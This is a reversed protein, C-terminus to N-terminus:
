EHTPSVSQNPQAKTSPTHHAVLFALLDAIQQDTLPGGPYGRWNPMNEGPAGAVIWTRLGGDSVLALYTPDLISAPGPAHCRLCDARYLAEGAAANGTAHSEYPPPTQSQLAGPNDWHSVIGGAIVGIQEDTLLGGSSKAFAPMLSGGIGNATIQAIHERGAYAIYVPNGLSIATGGQGDVGHCAQCNQRYLTDFDRVQDPRQPITGPAPKGPLRCGAVGSVTLALLVLSGWRDPRM